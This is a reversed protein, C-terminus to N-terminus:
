TPANALLERMQTQKLFPFPPFMTGKGVRIDPAGTIEWVEYRQQIEEVTARYRAHM